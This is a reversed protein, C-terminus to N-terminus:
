SLLWLVQSGKGGARVVRRSESPGRGRGEGDNSQPINYPTRLSKDVPSNESPKTQLRHDNQKGRKALAAGIGPSEFACSSKLVPIRASCGRDLAARHSHCRSVQGHLPCGPGHGTGSSALRKRSRPLVAPTQRTSLVVSGLCLSVPSVRVLSPCRYRHERRTVKIIQFGM